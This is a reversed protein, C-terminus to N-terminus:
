SVNLDSHKNIKSIANKVIQKCSSEGKEVSKLAENFPLMM